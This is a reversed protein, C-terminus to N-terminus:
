YFEGIVKEQIDMFEDVVRQSTYHRYNGEMVNRARRQWKDHIFCYAVVVNTDHFLNM